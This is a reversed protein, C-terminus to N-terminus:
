QTAQAPQKRVSYRSGMAFASVIGAAKLEDLAARVRNRGLGTRDMLDVIRVSSSLRMSAYVATADPTMDVGAM